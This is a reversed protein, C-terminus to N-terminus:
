ARGTNQGPAAAGAAPPPHDQHKFTLHKRGPNAIAPAATPVLRAPSPTHATVERKTPTAPVAGANPPVKSPTPARAAPVAAAIQTPPPVPFAANLTLQVGVSFLCPEQFFLCRSNTNATLCLDDANKKRCPVSVLPRQIHERLATLFTVPM